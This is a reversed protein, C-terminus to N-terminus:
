TLKDWKKELAKQIMEGVMQDFIDKIEKKHIVKNSKPSPGFFIRM